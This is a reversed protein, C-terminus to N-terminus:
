CPTDDAADSTYLLCNMIVDLAVKLAVTGYATRSIVLWSKKTDVKMIILGPELLLSFCSIKGNDGM